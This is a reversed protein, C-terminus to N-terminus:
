LMETFSSSRVRVLLHLLDVTAMKTKSADSITHSPGAYFAFQSNWAEFNRSELSETANLIRGVRGTRSIYTCIFIDLLLSNRDLIQLEM